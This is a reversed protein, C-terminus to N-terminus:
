FRGVEGGPRASQALLDFVYRAVSRFCILRFRGPAAMWLAAAVQACRTRRIEGPTFEAFDVPCLKALVAHAQPGEVAFLARADSMEVALAFSGELGAQLRDTLATAKGHPVLLMLEDPAMWAIARDDSDGLVMRPAPMDLGAERRVVDRLAADAPDGRLTIMGQPPAETITAFGEYRAGGLANVVTDAM